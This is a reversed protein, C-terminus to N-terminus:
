NHFFVHSVQKLLEEKEAAMAVVEQGNAPGPTTKVTCAALFFTPPQWAQSVQKLVPLAQEKSPSKLVLAGAMRSASATTNVM